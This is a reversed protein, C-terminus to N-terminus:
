NTKRSPMFPLPAIPIGDEILSKAEAGSAEGYIAREPADGVHMQRVEQVFRSGVYESNQEVHRRLKELPSETSTTQKAMPARVARETALRPAMVAKTVEASGCASCTLHGAGALKDFAEASQFWSDFAHGCGCKLAYHIM